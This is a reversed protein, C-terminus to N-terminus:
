HLLVHGAQIVQQLQTDTVGPLTISDNHGLNIVADGHVDSTVLAALEQVNQAAAFNKYAIALRPTHHQVRLM